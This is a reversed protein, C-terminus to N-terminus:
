MLRQGPPPLTLFPAVRSDAFSIRAIITKVSRSVLM